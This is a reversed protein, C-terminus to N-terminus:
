AKPSSTTMGMHLPRWHGQRIWYIKDVVVVVV